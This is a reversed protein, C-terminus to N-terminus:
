QANVLVHVHVLMELCDPIPPARPPLTRRASPLPNEEVWNDSPDNSLCCSLDNNLDDDLEDFRKSTYSVRGTETLGAKSSTRNSHFTRGGSNVATTFIDSDIHREFTESCLYRNRRGHNIEIM